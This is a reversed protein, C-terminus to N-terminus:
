EVDCFLYDVFYDFMVLVVDDVNWWYVVLFFLEVLCVVWGCFGVNVVECYWECLFDCCFVYCDVGYWWVVDVGVYYFCDVGVYEFFDNCCDWYLM